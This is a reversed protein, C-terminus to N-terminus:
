SGADERFESERRAISLALETSVPIDKQALPHFPYYLDPLMIGRNVAAKGLLIAFFAEDNDALLSGVQGLEDRELERGLRSFFQVAGVREGM